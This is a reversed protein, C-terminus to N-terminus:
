IYKNVLSSNLNSLMVFQVLQGKSFSDLWWQLMRLKPRQIEEVFLLFAEFNESSLPAFSVCDYLVIM